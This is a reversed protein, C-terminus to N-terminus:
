QITNDITSASGFMQAIQEGRLAQMALAIREASYTMMEETMGGGNYTTTAFGVDGQNGTLQLRVTKNGRGCQIFKGFIVQRPDTVKEFLGCDQVAM